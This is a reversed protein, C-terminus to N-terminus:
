TAPSATDLTEFITFLKDASNPLRPLRRPSCRFTSSRWMDSFRSKMLMATPPKFIAIEVSLAQLPCKNIKESPVRKWGTVHAIYKRNACM